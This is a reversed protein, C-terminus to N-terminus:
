IVPSHALFLKDTHFYLKYFYYFTIVKNPGKIGSTILPFSVTVLPLAKCRKFVPTELKSQAKNETSTIGTKVGETSSM